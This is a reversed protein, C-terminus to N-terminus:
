LLRFHLEFSAFPFVHCKVFAEVRLPKTLNDGHQRTSETFQVSVIRREVSGKIFHHRVGCSTSLGGGSIPNEAM